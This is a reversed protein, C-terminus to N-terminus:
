REEGELLARIEACSLGATQWPQAWQERADVEAAVAAILDRQRDLEALVIEGAEQSLSKRAGARRPLWSRLWEEASALDSVAPHRIWGTGQGALEAAARDPAPGPADTM